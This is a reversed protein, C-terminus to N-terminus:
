GGVVHEIFEGIGECYNQQCFDKAIIDRAAAGMARRQQPSAAWWELVGAIDTPELVKAVVIDDQAPSYVRDPGQTFDKGYIALVERSRRPALVEGNVGPTIQEPLGDVNGVIAPVGHALAEQVVNGFPERWSPCVFADLSSYFESMDDLLGCFRVSDELGWDAVLSKLASELVGEGAIWLEAHPVRAKLERLAEIAIVPAKLGTLRGAFGIRFRGEPHDSSVEPLVISNRVVKCPLSESIGLSLQLMRSAAHSNCIIGDVRSLYEHVDPSPEVFWAAGHEYHILSIHEPFHLPHHRFKNWVVIAQIGEEELLRTQCTNRLWRIQRPIKVGRYCKIDHVRDSHDAYVPQLMSHIVPTQLLVHHDRERVAMKFFNTFTREAGGLNKLSILHGTRPGKLTLDTM